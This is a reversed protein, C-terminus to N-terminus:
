LRFGAPSHYSTRSHTHMLGKLHHRATPYLKNVSAQPPLATPHPFFQPPFPYSFFRPLPFFSISTFFLRCFFGKLPSLQCLTATAEQSTRTLFGCTAGKQSNKCCGPDIGEAALISHVVPSSVNPLLRWTPRSMRRRRRRRCDTKSKTPSKVIINGQKTMTFRFSLWLPQKVM